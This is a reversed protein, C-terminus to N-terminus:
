YIHHNEICSNGEPHFPNSYIQKIGLQDCAAILSKNHFETTIWCSLLSREVKALIGTLYAHVIHQASKEKLPIAFIFSMHVCIATLAYHHGKSIVPLRGITDMALIAMPFQPIELHLHAYKTMDPHNNNWLLCDAIFKCIDQCLKPWRYKRWIAEFTCITGQHGKSSHFEVVIIHTLQKPIVTVDHPLSHILVSKCLMGNKELYAFHKIKTHRLKHFEAVLTRCQENKKQKEILLETTITSEAQPHKTTVLSMDQCCLTKPDQLPKHYLNKCKLCSITDELINDSGKIHIFNLNYDLLELAWRDLKQIKM